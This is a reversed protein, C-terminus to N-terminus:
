ARIHALLMGIPVSAIVIFYVLRVAWGLLRRGTGRTRLWALLVAVILAAGGLDVLVPLSTLSGTVVSLNGLVWFVLTFWESRTSHTPLQLLHQQDALVIQGVGGILVLYAALWSGQELQLPDTVAAILGGSVISAAGLAWGITRPAPGSWGTAATSSM